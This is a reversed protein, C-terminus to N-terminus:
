FDAFQKAKFQSGNDSVLTETVGFTHFLEQELYKIVIHSTLKKVAKLFPFKSYHDLVIFIGVNGSRSRPYSGLFDIFIKQFFRETGVIKGMPPRLLYNPHKTSKCIECNNIYNKVDVVINPWFYFRRIRELTKNIGGHSSLTSNHARFLIDPIM